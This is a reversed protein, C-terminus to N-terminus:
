KEVKTFKEHKQKNAVPFNINKDIQLYKRYTISCLNYFMKYLMYIFRKGHKIYSKSM